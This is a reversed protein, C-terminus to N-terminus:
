LTECQYSSRFSSQMQLSLHESQGDLLSFSTSCILSVNMRLLQLQPGTQLLVKKTWEELLNPYWGMITQIHSIKHIFLQRSTPYSVPFQCRPHWSGWVQWWVVEPTEDFIICLVALVVTRRLAVLGFRLHLQRLWNLLTVNCKPHIEIHSLCIHM